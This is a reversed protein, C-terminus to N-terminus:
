HGVRFSIGDLSVTANTMGSVAVSPDIVVTGDAFVDVRGMLNNGMIAFTHRWGPRYITPLTFAIQGLTGDKITGFLHVTGDPTRYYGPASYNTDYAVWGNALTPFQNEWFYAAGAKVNEVYVKAPDVSIATEFVSDRIASGNSAGSTSAEVSNLAVAGATVGSVNFRSNPSWLNFRVGNSFVFYTDRIINYASQARVDAEGVNSEFWSDKISVGISEHGTNTIMNAGINVGGQGLVATTTGNSEIDAGNILVSSAYDVDLGVTANNTLATKDISVLNINSLGTTHANKNLRLGTNNYRLQSDRIKVDVAGLIQLGIAGNEFRCNEITSRVISVGSVIIPTTKILDYGIFGVGKIDGIYNGLDTAGAVPSGMHLIPTASNDRKVIMTDYPGDGEINLGSGGNVWATLATASWRGTPLYLTPFTNVAHATDLAGAPYSHLIDLILGNLGATDDNSGDGKAGRWYGKVKGGGVFKVRGTGAYIQYNGAEPVPTTLTYGTTTIVAGNEIVWHAASQLTVNAELTIPKIIHITKGALLPDISKISLELFSSVTIWPAFQNIAAKYNVGGKVIPVLETGDVNTLTPMNLIKVGDAAWCGTSLFITMLTAAFLRQIM